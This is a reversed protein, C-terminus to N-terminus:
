DCQEKRSIVEKLVNIWCTRANISKKMSNAPLTELAELVEYANFHCVFTFSKSAKVIIPIFLKKRIFVILSSYRSAPILGKFDQYTVIM